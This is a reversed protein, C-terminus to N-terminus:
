TSVRSSLNLLKTVSVIDFENLLVEFNLDKVSELRYNVAFNVFKSFVTKIKCM